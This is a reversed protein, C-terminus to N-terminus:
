MLAEAMPQGPARSAAGGQQADYTDPRGAVDLAAVRRWEIWLDKLVEKMMIRLGDMHSHMKSWDEHTVATHARRAAYVEGYKGNPKGVGDETKAAGVWQKNKIWLSIV